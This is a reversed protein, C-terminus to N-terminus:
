CLHASRLTQDADLGSLGHLEVVCVADDDVLEIQAAYQPIAISPLAITGMSMVAITLLM